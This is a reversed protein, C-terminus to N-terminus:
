YKGLILIYKFVLKLLFSMWTHKLEGYIIALVNLLVTFLTWISQEQQQIMLFLNVYLIVYLWFRIVIYFSIQHSFLHFTKHMDLECKRKYSLYCFDLHQVKKDIWECCFDKVHGEVKLKLIIVLIMRLSVRTDDSCLVLWKLWGPWVKVFATAYEQRMWMPMQAQLMRPVLM